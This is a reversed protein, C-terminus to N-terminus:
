RGVFTAEHGVHAGRDSVSAIPARCSPCPQRRRQLEAACEECCAAHGCGFRVARAAAMCVVCEKAEQAVAIGPRVHHEAAIREVAALAEPLPTRQRAFQGASLGVVVRMLAEAVPDPWGASAQVVTPALSPEELADQCADVIDAAPQPALCTLLTIGIAYGDTLESYKGTRSYLPDIFGLTGILRQTSLHTRGQQLEPAVRVLGVDALKANGEGDLLINAPKIDRHLMVEKGGGPTHLYLLARMSDRAARVRAQWPLPAPLPGLRSLRQRGEATDILRDELNGGAM